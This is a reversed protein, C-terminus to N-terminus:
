FTQLKLIKFNSNLTKKLIKQTKFYFIPQFYYNDGIEEFGNETDATRLNHLMRFTIVKILCFNLCFLHKKM